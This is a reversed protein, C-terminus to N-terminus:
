REGCDLHRRNVPLLETRNTSGVLFFYDCGSRSSM